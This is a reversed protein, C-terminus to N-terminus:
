RRLLIRRGGEGTLELAGDPLIQWTMEGQLAGTYRAEQANLAPALCAKRTTMLPGFTLKSGDVTYTGSFINCGTTGSVREGSVFALTLRSNDIVGRRNIDEVVWDAGSLVAPDGATVPADPRAIFGFGKENMLVLNGLTDLSASAKGELISVFKIEQGMVGDQLCAMKTMGVGSFSLTEGQQTYSGFFRNCGTSGNVQGDNTFTISPEHGAVVATGGLADIKWATGALVAGARAAVLVTGDGGTLVLEGAENFGYAVTGSLTSVIRSEQANSADELCARETMALPGFYLTERSVKFSGSYRNCGGYGSVIGDTGLHLELPAGGVAPSGAVATLIWAGEVPPPEVMPSYAAVKVMVIEGVSYAGTGDGEVAVRHSTDTTWLLAGDPGTVTARVTYTMRPDFPASPVLTFKKPVGGEDLSISWDALEIAPADARSTDSLVVKLVSGNPASMRERYTATGTVYTEAAVAEPAPVHGPMLSCAPLLALAAVTVMPFIVDKRFRKQM